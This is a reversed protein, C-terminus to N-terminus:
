IAKSGHGIAEHLLIGPWEPGLVVDLNGGGPTKASLNVGGPADAERAYREYDRGTSLSASSWGGAAASAASRATGNEEVICTWQAGDAAQIDRCGPGQSSRRPDGTSAPRHFGFVNKWEKISLRPLKDIEYLLAVKRDCRVDNV